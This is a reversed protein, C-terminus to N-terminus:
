IIIAYLFCNVVDVINMSSIMTKSCPCSSLGSLAVTLSLIQVSRMLGLWILPSSSTHRYCYFDLVNGFLSQLVCAKDDTTRRLNWLVVTLRGACFRHLMRWCGSGDVDTAGSLTPAVGSIIVDLIMWHRPVIGMARLQPRSATAWVASREPHPVRASSM